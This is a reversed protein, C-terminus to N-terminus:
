SVIDKMVVRIKGDGDNVAREVDVVETGGDCVARRRGGLDVEFSELEVAGVM